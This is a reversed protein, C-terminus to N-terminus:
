DHTGVHREGHVPCKFSYACVCPTPVAQECCAYRKLTEAQLCETSCVPSELKWYAYALTTDNVPKGCIRCVTFKQLWAEDLRYINHPQTDKPYQTGITNEQRDIVVLTGASHVQVSNM